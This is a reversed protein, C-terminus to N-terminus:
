WQDELLDCAHRLLRPQLDGRDVRHRTLNRAFRQRLLCFAVHWNFTSRSLANPRCRTYQQWVGAALAPVIADPAGQLLSQAVLASVMGGLDLAAPGALAADFDILRASSGDVLVNAPHLDGHLFAHEGNAPALQRLRQLLARAADVHSASSFSQLLAELTQLEAAMDFRPLATPAEIGHLDALAAIASALQDAATMASLPPALPTGPVFRQWAQRHAQLYLVPAACIRGLGARHIAAQAALGRQGREDSACKGILQLSEAGAPDKVSLRATCSQEPVYRILELRWDRTSSALGCAVMLQPLISQGFLERDALAHAGTIKCDNPFLWAVTDLDALHLVGPGCHSRHVARLSADAFRAGSRGPALRRLGVLQQWTNGGSHCTATAGIVVREGPRSRVRDITLASCQADAGASALAHNLADRLLGAEPVQPEMM